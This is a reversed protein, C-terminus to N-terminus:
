PYAQMALMQYGAMLSKKGFYREDISGPSTPSVYNVSPTSRLAWQVAAVCGHLDFTLVVVALRARGLFVAAVRAQSLRYRDSGVVEPDVAVHGIKPVDPPDALPHPALPQVSSALPRV